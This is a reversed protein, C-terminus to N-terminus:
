IENCCSQDYIILSLATTACKQCQKSNILSSSTNINFHSYKHHYVDPDRRIRNQFGIYLDDWLLGQQVVYRMVGIRNKIKFSLFM